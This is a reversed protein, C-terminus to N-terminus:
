IMANKVHLPSTYDPGAVGLRQSLETMEAQDKAPDGETMFALQLLGRPAQILLHPRAHVENVALARGAHAQMGYVSAVATSRPTTDFLPQKM